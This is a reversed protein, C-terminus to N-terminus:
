VYEGTLNARSDTSYSTNLGNSPPLHAAYNTTYYNLGIFDFSGKILKSQEKTFKPLRDGVLARMSAPYNGRILPDMFRAPPVNRQHYSITYESGKIKSQSIAHAVSGVMWVHLRHRTKSCRWQNQLPLLSSVLALSINYWDNGRAHAANPRSANRLYKHQGNLALDSVLIANGPIERQVVSSNRCPCTAPSPGRHLAGKRFGWCQMQGPGMALVPRPCCLRGRLGILLFDLARQLHDLAESSWWVGQLLRWCLGQLRKQSM